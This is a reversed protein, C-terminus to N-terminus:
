RTEAGDDADPEADPEADPKAAPEWADPAGPVAPAVSESFQLEVTADAGIWVTGEFRLENHFDRVQVVHPGSGVPLEKRREGRFEIPEGDVVLNAWSTSRNQLALTGPSGAAPRHVPAEERAVGGVDESDSAEAVVDVFLETPDVGELQALQDDSGEEPVKNSYVWEGDVNYLGKDSLRRRSMSKPPAIYIDRNEWRAEVRKGVPVDVMGSWLEQGLLNRVMMRQRGEKGDPFDIKLKAAGGQVPYPKLNIVVVVPKDTTVELQSKALAGSMTMWLSLWAALM